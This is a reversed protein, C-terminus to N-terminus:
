INEDHKSAMNVNIQVATKAGGNGKDHKQYIGVAEGRSREAGLAVKLEGRLKALDRIVALEDLHAGVSILSAEQVSDTIQKIKLAVAPLGLLEKGRSLPFPADPGFVMRYAAGVNGTCEVVALAFAEEDQSLPPYAFIEAEIVQAPLTPERADIQVLTTHTQTDIDM